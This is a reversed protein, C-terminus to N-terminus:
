KRKRKRVHFPTLVPSRRHTHPPPTFCGVFPACCRAAVTCFSMGLPFLGKRTSPTKKQRPRKKKKTTRLSSPQIPTSQAFTCHPTTLLDSPCLCYAHLPADSGHQNGCCAAPTSLFQPLCRTRDLPPCPPTSPLHHPPPACHRMTARTPPLARRSIRAYTQHSRPHIRPPPPPLFNPPSSPLPSPSSSPLSANYM